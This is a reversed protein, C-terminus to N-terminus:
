AFVVPSSFAPAFASLATGCADATTATVLAGAGATVLAGTGATYTLMGSFTCGVLVLAMRNTTTLPLLGSQSGFQGSHIDASPTMVLMVGLFKPSKKFAIPSRRSGTIM